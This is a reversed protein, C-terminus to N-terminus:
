HAKKSNRSMLHSLSIIISVINPLPMLKESTAKYFYWDRTARMRWLLFLGGLSCNAFSTSVKVALFLRSLLGHPRSAFQRFISAQLECIQRSWPATTFCQEVEETKCMKKLCFASSMRRFTSVNCWSSPIQRAQTIESPFWRKWILYTFFNDSRMMSEIPKM